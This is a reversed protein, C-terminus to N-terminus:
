WRRIEKKTKPKEKKVKDGAVAVGTAAGGYVGARAVGRKTAIDAPGQYKDGLRNGDKDKRGKKVAQGTSTRQQRTVVDILKEDAAKVTRTGAKVSDVIPAVVGKDVGSKIADKARSLFGKLASDAVDLGEKAAERAARKAAM